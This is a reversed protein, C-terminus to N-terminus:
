ARKQAARRAAVLLALAGVLWPSTAGGGSGSSMQHPVAPLSTVTLTVGNSAVSGASNAGVCRFLDGSMQTTPLSVTLTASTVGAYSGGETLNTWINSGSSIWQWQYTPAPNGAVAVTFSASYGATVAQNQPQTLISPPTVPFQVLIGSSVATGMSNTAVLTYIGADASELNTIRLTASTAGSIDGGDILNFGDKRWHLAPAPFGTVHLTIMATGGLSAPYEGAVPGIVPPTYPEDGFGIAALYENLPAL